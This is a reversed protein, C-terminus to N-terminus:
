LTGFALPVRCSFRYATDQFSIDPESLIKPSELLIILM